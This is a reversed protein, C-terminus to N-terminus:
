SKMPSPLSVRTACAKGQTSFVDIRARRGEGEPRLMIRWDPTPLLGAAKDAWEILCVSHPNFHERFGADEWEEPDSFRYLDFHYLYLNSISYPEVLTYTPSKVRGTYGLGRLIGRTLTTKGAGLDGELEIVLGGELAAAIAEGLALTASEDPLLLDAFLATDDPSHM